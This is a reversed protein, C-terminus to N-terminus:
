LIVQPHAARERGRPQATGEQKAHGAHSLILFCRVSGRRCILLASCLCCNVRAMFRTMRPSPVAGLAGCFRRQLCTVQLLTRNIQCGGSLNPWGGNWLYLSCRESPSSEPQTETFLFRSSSSVCQSSLPRSTLKDMYRDIPRDM